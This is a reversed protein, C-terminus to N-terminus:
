YVGPNFKQPDGNNDQSGSSRILCLSNPLKGNQAFQQETHYQAVQSQCTENEKLRNSFIDNDGKQSVDTNGNLEEHHKDNHGGGNQRCGNQACQYLM